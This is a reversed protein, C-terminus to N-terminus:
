YNLDAGCRLCTIRGVTVVMVMVVVVVVMVIVIVVVVMVMVVVVVVVGGWWPGTAGTLLIAMPHADHPMAHIVDEVAKPVGSHM